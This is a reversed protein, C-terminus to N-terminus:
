SSISKCLSRIVSGKDIASIIVSLLNFIGKPDVSAITDLAIMTGWILRNNKSKLIEGFEKIYPAILEASGREGIEYLVKLCDSQINKNKHNLNEVLERVWEKNKTRIIEVALVQNPKEDRRNLSTAVLDIATM